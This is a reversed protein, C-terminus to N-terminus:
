AQPVWALKLNVRDQRSRPLPPPAIVAVPARRQTRCCRCRRRGSRGAPPYVACIVPALPVVPVARQPRRAEPPDRRSGGPGSMEAM